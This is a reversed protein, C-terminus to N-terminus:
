EHANGHRVHDLERLLVLHDGIGGVLLVIGITITIAPTNVMAYFLASPLPPTVFLDPLSLLPLLGLLALVIGMGLYHWRFRGTMWWVGILSAALALAFISIPAQWIEMVTSLFQMGIIVGLGVLVADRRPHATVRVTGFQRQYYRVLRFSVIIAVVGGGLWMVLNWLEPSIGLRNALNLAKLLGAVVFFIGLPLLQIGQLWVFYRAYRQVRRKDLLM